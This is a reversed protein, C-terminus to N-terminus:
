QVMSISDVSSPATAASAAIETKPSNVTNVYDGSSITGPVMTLAIAALVKARTVLKDKESTQKLKESEALVADVTKEAESATNPNYLESM